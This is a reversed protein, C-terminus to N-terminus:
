LKSSYTTANKKAEKAAKMKAKQEESIVRGKRTTIPRKGFRFRFLPCNLATCNAVHTHPSYKEDGGMCHLCFQRIAKLPNNNLKEITQQV